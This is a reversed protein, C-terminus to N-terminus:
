PHGPAFALERSDDTFNTSSVPDMSVSSVLELKRGEVELLTRWYLCDGVPGGICPVCPWLLRCPKTQPRGCMCLPWTLHRLNLVLVRHRVPGPRSAQVLMFSRLSCVYQVEDASNGDPWYSSSLNRSTLIAIGPM